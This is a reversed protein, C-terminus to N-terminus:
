WTLHLMCVNMIGLIRGLWLQLPVLMCFMWSDWKLSFVFAAYTLLSRPSPILPKSSSTMRVDRYSIRVPKSNLRWCCGPYKGTIGSPAVPTVVPLSTHFFLNWLVCNSIVLAQSSSGFFCISSYKLM